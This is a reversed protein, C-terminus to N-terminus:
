TLLTQEAAQLYHEAKARQGTSFLFWARYICLHPKECLWEDPLKELWIRLRVHDGLKWFRDVLGAILVACREYDEALFAHDVAQDIFSNEQYWVSARTHLIPATHLDTQRLRQRLLDAFLHHYRYWERENDLPIIFLNARELMELIMQGNEEDTVANCLSSTLQDLVSTQLLFNQIDESQQNLVEEILYDLVLRNSGTFTQILRSTDTQGQLTLAALQLGAIWGETRTELAAIDEMSLSLGMVQNLFEAAEIATFRLDAARIETLQNRTRWRPLPLLPDERTTIVLHLQSPLNELLFTLADHVASTEILHYDDLVLFIKCELGAIENILSTLVTESPPPQPSRLMVLAGTGIANDTGKLRHLSEVLYTLFRVPDNDNEDLSVWAVCFPSLANDGKTTLWETVLTSKGFGAPASILTLKRNIGDDLRKILRPRTVLEPRTAPIFLKTVLIPFSM